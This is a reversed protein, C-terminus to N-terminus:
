HQISICDINTGLVVYFVYICKTPLVYLIKIHFVSSCLTFM